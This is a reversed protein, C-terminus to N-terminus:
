TAESRVEQVLRRFRGQECSLRTKKRLYNLMDSINPGARDEINPIFAKLTADDVRKQHRISPPRVTTILSGIIERERNLDHVSRPAVSQVYHSLARQPFDVRTGALGFARLREDYPMVYDRLCAPLARDLSLGFIRLPTTSALTLLEDEVLQAYGRSLCILVLERGHAHQLLSASFPGQSVSRWWAKPDFDGVIKRVISGPGHPRVTLDYSPIATDKTVYGLGASIIGLDAGLLDATKLALKFARGAYVQHAPHQEQESALLQTWGGAVESQSAPRLAEVRAGVRCRKSASCTTIILPRKM